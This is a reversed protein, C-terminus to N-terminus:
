KNKEGSRRRVGKEQLREASRARSRQGKQLCEETSSKSRKKAKVRNWALM